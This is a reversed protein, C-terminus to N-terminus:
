NALKIIHAFSVHGFRGGVLREGHDQDMLRVLSLVLFITDGNKHHDACKNELNDLVRTSAM